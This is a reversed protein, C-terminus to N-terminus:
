IILSFLLIFMVPTSCMILLWVHGLACKAAFSNHRNVQFSCCCNLCCLFKLKFTDSEETEESDNNEADEDNVPKSICKEFNINSVCGVIFVGLIWIIVCTCGTHFMGNGRNLMKILYSKTYGTGEIKVCYRGDWERPGVLCWTKDSWEGFIMDWWIFFSGCCGLDNFGNDVIDNVWKHLFYGRVILLISLIWYLLIVAGFILNCVQLKQKTKDVVYNKLLCIAWIISINLILIPLFNLSIWTLVIWLWPDFLHVM